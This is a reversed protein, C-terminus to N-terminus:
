EEFLAALAVFSLTWQPSEWGISESENLAKVVPCRAQLCSGNNEFTRKQTVCGLRAVQLFFAM